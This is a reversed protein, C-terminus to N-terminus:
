AMFDRYFDLAEEWLKRSVEKYIPEGTKNLLVMALEESGSRKKDRLAYNYLADYDRCEFNVSPFVEKALRAKSTLLKEDLGESKYSIYLAVVLGAVVAFGHLLQEGRELALAELAHATTHGLNLQHRVGLDTLDETVLSLKYEICKAIIEDDVMEEEIIDSLLDSGMLLDYKLVEGFGSYLEQVPLTKLFSLAIWVEEAEYFTGVMNKTHGLDIGTKGGISADIMGLLSTPIHILHTGRMYTSAVFGALDSISGGGLSILYDERTYELEQLTVWLYHAVEISKAEEGVPVQAIDLGESAVLPYCEDLTNEDVVLAVKRKSSLAELRTCIDEIDLLTVGM